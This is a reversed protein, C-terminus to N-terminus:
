LEGRQRATELLSDVDVIADEAKVQEWSPIPCGPEQVLIFLRGGECLCDVYFGEAVCAAIESEVERADVDKANPKDVGAYHVLRCSSTSLVSSRFAAIAQQYNGGPEIHKLDNPMQM